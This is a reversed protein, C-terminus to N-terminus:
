KCSYLRYTKFPYQKTHKGGYEKNRQNKNSFLSSGFLKLAREPRDPFPENKDYLIKLVNNLLGLYLNVLSREYSTYVDAISTAPYLLQYSTPSM